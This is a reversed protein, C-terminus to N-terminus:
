PGYTEVGAPVTRTSADEERAVRRGKELDVRSLIVMGIVFFLALSLIALRATSTLTVVLAFLAPEVIGAFKGFVSYFSFFESSKARPVITAYVSRSLAQIGGQLVGVGATLAYFHWGKSVFVALFTLVTYAALGIYIGRMPGIRGALSGFAFTFPIGVFQSVVIGGLLAGSGIDLSAGYITALKPISHIGDIFFWYAVLFVVLDRYQRMEGFTERLRGFGVWVPNAGASEDEEL